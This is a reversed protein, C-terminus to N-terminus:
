TEEQVISNVNINNKQREEDTRLWTSFMIFKSKEIARLAHIENPPNNILDGEQMIIKKAIENSNSPKYWYELSGNLLLFYQNGRLRYHNGRIAGKKLNFIIIKPFKQKYFIDAIRGRKDEHIELPDKVDTWVNRKEM